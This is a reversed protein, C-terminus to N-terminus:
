NTASRKGQFPLPLDSEEQQRPKKLFHDIWDKIFHLNENTFEVVQWKRHIVAYVPLEDEKLAAVYVGYESTGLEKLEDYIIPSTRTVEM